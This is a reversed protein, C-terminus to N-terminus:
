VIVPWAGRVSGYHRMLTAFAPDDPHPTTPTAPPTLYLCGVESAPLRPFLEDAEAAAHRWADKIESLPVPRALNEGALDEDRFKMHANAYGLLSCPNFGQDKGCAAWCIAGLSLYTEHLYLIDIFDRIESRGALALAKNVALDAPHLCYGFEPDPQVPFFRFASDYCWELKLEQADRQVRARQLYPQQQLWDVAYGAKVLVAADSQATTYVNDAIDHFIDIDASYRPSQDSRNIASGGAVHSEPQRQVALLQMVAHQFPTIPM